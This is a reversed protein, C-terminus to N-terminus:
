LFSKKVIDYYLQLIHGGFEDGMQALRISFLIIHGKIDHPIYDANIIKNIFENNAHLVQHGVGDAYPLLSSISKVISYNLKKSTTPWGFDFDIYFGMSQLQMFIVILIAVCSIANSFQNGYLVAMTNVGNKKDEEIDNTDAINSLAFMVLFPPLLININNFQLIDYNGDHIVCPLIFFSIVWMISVYFPKLIGSQQKISPYYPTTDLLILFPIYQLINLEYFGIALIATFPAIILPNKSYTLLYKDFQYLILCLLSNIINTNTDFLILVIFCYAYKIILEIMDRNNDTINIGRDKSDYLRDNGYTYIGILFQLIVLKADIINDGYYQRTYLYSLINLPIGLSIGPITLPLSPENNYDDKNVKNENKANKATLVPLHHRNFPKFSLSTLLPKTSKTPLPRFVFSSFLPLLSVITVFLKM